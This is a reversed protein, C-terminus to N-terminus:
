KHITMCLHCVTRIIEEVWEPVYFKHILGVQNQLHVIECKFFVSLFLIDTLVVCSSEVGCELNENV